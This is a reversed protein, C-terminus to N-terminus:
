KKDPAQLRYGLRPLTARAKPGTMFAVFLRCLAPNDRAGKKLVVLSQAIPEYLAPDVEAWRGVGRMGPALVVSKATLGFDAAKTTIFSNVQSVAEGYVLKPSAKEYVGASKLAAVAARGYPSVKPDAVAIKAAAGVLSFGKAVDLDRLTWLVLSGHGYLVPAGDAHGQAALLDPYQTDASVFVDFPAGERIQAAFKGSSGSVLTLEVGTQERFDRLSEMAPMMNAAVAITLSKAAACVPALILVLILLRERLLQFKM